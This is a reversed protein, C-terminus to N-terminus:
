PTGAVLTGRQRLIRTNFSSVLTGGLFVDVQVLASRLYVNSSDQGVIDADGSSETRVVYFGNVLGQATSSINGPGNLNYPTYSWASQSAAPLLPQPDYAVSIATPLALQSAHSQSSQHMGYCVLAIVASLGLVVVLLICIVEIFTFARICARSM